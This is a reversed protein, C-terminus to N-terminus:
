DIAQLHQGSACLMCLRCDQNANFVPAKLKLQEQRSREFSPRFITRKSGDIVVFVGDKQEIV